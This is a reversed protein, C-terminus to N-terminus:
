LSSWPSFYMCKRLRPERSGRLFNECVFILQHVTNFLKMTPHMYVDPLYEYFIVFFRIERNTVPYIGYIRPTKKVHWYIQSIPPFHRVKKNAANMKKVIKLFVKRVAFLTPYLTQTNSIKCHLLYRSFLVRFIIDDHFHGSIYVTRYRYLKTKKQFM